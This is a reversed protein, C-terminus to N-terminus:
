FYWINKIFYNFPAKMHIYLEDEMKATNLNASEFIQPNHFGRPIQNFIYRNFEFNWVHLSIIVKVQGIYNSRGM